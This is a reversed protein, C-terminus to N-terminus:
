DLFAFENSMLLVQAYQEWPELPQPQEKPGGFDQQANWEVVLGAGADHEADLAQLAPKWTFSDSNESERCNVIFDLTEGPSVALMECRTEARGNKLTWSGLEGSRSSVIWAQIGDGADSAHELVGSIRVKLDRPAVWRRIATYQHDRGPHGGTATLSVWGLAPDPLAPGGQWARGTFHPLPEFTTVLKACPDYHGYGYQWVVPESVPPGLEDLSKLFADALYAENATPERQLIV